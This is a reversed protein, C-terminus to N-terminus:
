ECEILIECVYIFYFSLRDYKLFLTCFKGFDVREKIM